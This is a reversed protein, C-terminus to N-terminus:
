QMQLSIWAYNEQIFSKMRTKLMKGKLIYVNERTEINTYKIEHMKITFIFGLKFFLQQLGSILV